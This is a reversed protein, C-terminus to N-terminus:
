TDKLHSLQLSWVAVVVGFFSLFIHLEMQSILEDCVFFVYIGLVCLTTSWVIKTRNPHELIQLLHKRINQDFHWFRVFYYSIRCIASSCESLKTLSRKSFRNMILWFNLNQAIDKFLVLWQIRVLFDSLFISHMCSNQISASVITLIYSFYRM